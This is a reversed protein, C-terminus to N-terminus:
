TRRAHPMRVLTFVFARYGRRRLREALRAAQRRHSNRCVVKVRAGPAVPGAAANTLQWRRGCKEWRAPFFCFAYDAWLEVAGPPTRCDHPAPDPAADAPPM